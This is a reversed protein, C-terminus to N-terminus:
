REVLINVELSELGGIACFVFSSLFLNLKKQIFNPIVLVYSITLPTATPPTCEDSNRVKPLVLGIQVSSLHNV